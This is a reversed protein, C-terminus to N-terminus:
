FLSVPWAPTHARHLASHLPLMPSEQVTRASWPRTLYGPSGLVVVVDSKAIGASLILM